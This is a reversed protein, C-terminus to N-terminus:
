INASARHFKTSHEMVTDSIIQRETRGRSWTPLTQGTNGRLEGQLSSVKWIAIYYVSHIFSAAQLTNARMLDASVGIACMNHCKSRRAPPSAPLRAPALPTMHVGGSNSGSIIEGREVVM